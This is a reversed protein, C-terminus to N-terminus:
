SNADFDNLQVFLKLYLNFKDCQNLPFQKTAGRPGNDSVLYGTGFKVSTGCTLSDLLETVHRTPLLLDRRKV